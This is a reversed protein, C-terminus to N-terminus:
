IWERGNILDLSVLKGHLECLSNHRFSSPSSSLPYNPNGSASTSLVGASNLSGSGSIEGEANNDADEEISSMVPASYMECICQPGGSSIQSSGAGLENNSNSGSSNVNSNSRLSPNAQEQQEQLRRKRRKRRVKNPVSNLMVHSFREGSTRVISVWDIM